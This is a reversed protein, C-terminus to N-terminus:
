DKRFNTKKTFARLGILAQQQVKRRLYGSWGLLLGSVGLASKSWHWFSFHDSHRVIKGDLFQFEAYIINNVLRGTRPFRYNVVWCASGSTDDAKIHSYTLEFDQAKSCLMHWMDTVEQANLSIFVPDSFQVQPHYCEAMSQWDLRQFARYFSEILKENVHQMNFEM